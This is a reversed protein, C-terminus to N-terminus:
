KLLQLKSISSKPQDPDLDACFSCPDVVSTQGPSHVCSVGQMCMSLEAEDGLTEQSELTSELESQSTDEPAEQCLCSLLTLVKVTFFIKGRMNQRDICLYYLLVM